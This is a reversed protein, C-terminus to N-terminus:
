NNVTQKISFFSDVEVISSDRCFLFNFINILFISCKINAATFVTSNKVLLHISVTFDTLCVTTLIIFLVFQYCLQLPSVSTIKTYHYYNQMSNQFLSEEAIGM